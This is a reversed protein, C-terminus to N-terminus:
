AITGLSKWTGPSGAAVCVWGTDSGSAPESNHVVSGVVWEGDTPASAGYSTPAGMASQPGSFLNGVLSIRGVPAELDDDTPAISANGILTTARDGSAAFSTAARKVVNGIVVADNNGINIGIKGGECTNHAVVPMEASDAVFGIGAHNKGPAVQNNTIVFDKGHDPLKNIHIAEATSSVQNGEIRIGNFDAFNDDFWIGYKVGSIHNDRIAGDTVDRQIHIGGGLTANNVNTIQNGVVLSNTCFAITIAAEKTDVGGDTVTNTITNHAIINNANRHGTGNGGNYNGHDNIAAVRTNQNSILHPPKGASLIHNHAAICNSAGKDFDIHTFSIGDFTCGIVSSDSTGPGAFEVTNWGWTGEFHCNSVAVRSCRGSPNPTLFDTTARIAFNLHLNDPQIFRCQTINVREVPRDHTELVHMYVVPGGPWGYEAEYGTEVFTVDFLEIDSSQTILIAHSVKAVFANRGTGGQDMKLHAVTASEIRDMEIVARGGGFDKDKAAKLVSADGEGVLRVLSRMILPATTRYTGTPVRLEGGGTDAVADIGRQIAATDDHKGDGRAGYQAVSAVFNRSTPAAQAPRPAASAAVAVGVAGAFAALGRRAIKPSGEVTPTNQSM